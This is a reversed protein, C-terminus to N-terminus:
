NGPEDKKVDNLTRIGSSFIKEDPSVIPSLKGEIKGEELNIEDAYSKVSWPLVIAFAMAPVFYWNWVIGDPTVMLSIWYYCTSIFFEFWAFGLAVKKNKKVTYYVIAFAILLAVGIAQIIRLAPIDLAPNTDVHETSIRHFVYFCNPSLFLVSAMTLWLAFNNHQLTKLM